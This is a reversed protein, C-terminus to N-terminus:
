KYFVLIAANGGVRCIPQNDSDFATYETYFVGEDDDAGTNRIETVGDKGVKIHHYCGENYLVEISDIVRKNEM